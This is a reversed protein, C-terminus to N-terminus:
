IETNTHSPAVCVCTLCCGTSNEGELTYAGPIINLSDPKTALVKVLQAM